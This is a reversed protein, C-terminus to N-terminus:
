KRYWKMSLISACVMAGFFSKKQKEVAGRGAGYMPYSLDESRLGGLGPSSCSSSGATGFQVVVFFFVVFEFGM